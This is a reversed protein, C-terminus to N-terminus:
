SSMAEMPSIAAARRAPYVGFTVGTVVSFILAIGVAHTPIYFAIEDFGAARVASFALLLVIVTIVVGILAGVCAIMVAEILFQKMVDSRRAGLAKRLGIEKRREEISVIMINMIGIGGVFLSISALALLLINVGGFITDFMDQAETISMVSFDAEDIDDIDHRSLLIRKIDAVTNDMRTTDHVKVSIYSIYDIHLFKKQLTTYPLYVMNDFSMGFMSGRDKLVGVVRYKKDNLTIRKGIVTEDVVAFLETAIESGIVAVDAAVREEESTFFRGYRLKVGPDVQPNSASTGLLIGYLSADKYKALAQGMLGVSYNAVNPLRGIVEADEDTLTTIEVGMAMQSVNTTSAHETEPISIEVQIVDTGFQEIESAIYQQVSTGMTVVSMIVFVSIIVGLLTLITRMTHSFM